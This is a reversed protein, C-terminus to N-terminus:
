GENGLPLSRLKERFSAISPAKIVDEPLNNWQTVIRESFFKRRPTTGFFKKQLKLEHGRLQTESYKFMETLGNKYLGHTYKYVECLDAINRRSLLSPLSVDGGALRLCRRQASELANIDKIQHPNWVPSAYELVPRIISQYLILVKESTLNTFCRKVLGIRQNARKVINSVHESPSLSSNITVGLDKQSDVNELNYGNLTYM